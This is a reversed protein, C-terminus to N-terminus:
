DIYTVEVNSIYVEHSDTFKLFENVENILKSFNGKVRKNNTQIEKDDDFLLNTIYEDKYCGYESSFPDVIINFIHSYTGGKSSLLNSSRNNKFLELRFNVRKITKFTANKVNVYIPSRQPCIRAGETRSISVTTTVGYNFFGVLLIILTASVSFITIKSIKLM